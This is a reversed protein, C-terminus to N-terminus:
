MPVFAWSDQFIIGDPCESPFFLIVSMAEQVSIWLISWSPDLAIVLASGDQAFDVIDIASWEAVRLITRIVDLAILIPDDELLDVGFRARPTGVAAGSWSAAWPWRELRYRTLINKREERMERM